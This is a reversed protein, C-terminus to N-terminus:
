CHDVFRDVFLSLPAERGVVIICTKGQFDLMKKVDCFVAFRKDKLEPGLPRPNM